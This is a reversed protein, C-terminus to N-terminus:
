VLFNSTFFHRFTQFHKIKKKILVNLKQTDAPIPTNFSENARGRSVTTILSDREM